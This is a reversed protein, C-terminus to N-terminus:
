QTKLRDITKQIALRWVAEILFVATLIIIGALAFLVFQSITLAFFYRLFPTAFVIVLVSALMSILGIRVSTLPRAMIVVVWLSISVLVLIAVSMSEELTTGPSIESIIFSTLTSAAIIAGVL